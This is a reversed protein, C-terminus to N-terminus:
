PTSCPDVESTIATGREHPKSSRHASCLNRKFFGAAQDAVRRHVARRDVADADVCWLPLAVHGQQTCVALFTYHGVGDLTDVDIGSMRQSLEQVFQPLVLTDGAGTVVQVPVDVMRLSDDVLAPMLAPAMAFVARVRQDRFSGHATRLSARALPDEALFREFEDASQASEPPPRCSDDRTHARCHVRFADLDVRAGAVLMATFGGLSFGAVGIREADIHPGFRPDALLRDLLASVDRAREWWLAFGAVLTRPEAATNGHHNVGAVIFGQAALADALWSMQATSGGTGHSVLILPLRGRSPAFAADPANHGFEFVGGTWARPTADRRAPYWVTAALPRSQGADNWDPRSDDVYEAHARGVPHDRHEAVGLTAMALWALLAALATVGSSRGVRHRRPCIRLAM